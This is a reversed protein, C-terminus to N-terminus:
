LEALVRHACAVALAGDGVAFAVRKTTGSRVDGAAFVGPCTTEVSCPERETLPWRDSKAADAGTLIFGKADVAISPPMWDTRPQAGIFVFIASCDLDRITKQRVDRLRLGTITGNGVVGDVEVHCVVEIKAHREIRRALYDSMSKRLNGGRLLLVAGATNQALYMVAQGASNGGGVVAARGSHCARAHVSTCSYFIGAGDWRECGPVPLRQYSAGTAILVTRGRVVQGDDLVLRHMCNESTMSRVEVPAVLEAGFKLAQLYGRNALDAGSLGAPFGMYNEIRSSTGAQGGPGFRDLVITALGESAGYVAAALGAPGAGVIVLDFPETRIQRKLGLCEALRTVTPRPSRSGRNCTVFPLQDPEVKLSQLAAKGEEQDSDIWTHPVKNKDFFERILTVDPDDLRGFLRVGVFGSRELMIRRSQFAELLKDSLEPIEQIVRRLEAHSVCYARCEGRAYASIVAPRDTLLSVDGTFEGPGHVVITVPEERSEDVIAIEGSEVVYLPLDRQGARSSRSAMM